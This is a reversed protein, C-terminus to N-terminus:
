NCVFSQSAKFQPVILAMGFSGAFLRLIGWIGVMFFFGLTGYIMMKIGETRKETDDGHGIYKILGQLFAGVAIVVLYPIFSLALKVVICAMSSVNTPTSPIGGTKFGGIPQGIAEPLAALAHSTYLFFVVISYFTKKFVAKM